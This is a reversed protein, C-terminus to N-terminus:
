SVRRCRSISMIIDIDTLFHRRCCMRHVGLTDLANGHATRTDNKHVSGPKPPGISMAKIQEPTTLSDILVEVGGLRKVLERYKKKRGGLYKGCTWCVITDLM